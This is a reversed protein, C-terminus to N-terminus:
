VRQCYEHLHPCELKGIFTQLFCIFGARTNEKFWYIIFDCCKQVESHPFGLSCFLSNNPIDNYTETVLILKHLMDLPQLTNNFFSICFDFFYVTSNNCDSQLYVVACFWNLQWNNHGAIEHKEKETKVRKWCHCSLTFM